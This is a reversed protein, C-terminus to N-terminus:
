RRRTQLNLLSQQHQQQQQQWLALPVDEEAVTNESTRPRRAGPPPVAHASQAKRGPVRPGMPQQANASISRVPPRAETFVPAQAQMSPSPKPSASLSFISAPTPGGVPQPLPPPPPVYRTSSGPSPAPPPPSRSRRPAAANRVPSPGGTVAGAAEAESMSMSVQLQMAGPAAIGPPTAYGAGPPAGPPRAGAFVSGYEQEMARHQMDYQPGRVPQEARRPGANLPTGKTLNGRRSQPTQQQQQSPGTAKAEGREIEAQEVEARDKEEHEKQTTPGSGGTEAEAQDTPTQQQGQQQSQPQQTKNIVGLYWFMLNSILVQEYLARRPNALKIHSLRYIAREVHIPYRSYNNVNSPQPSAPPVYGRSSKSAGLLAVAAERGSQGHGLGVATNEEPKKKSGFLSGFFGPDKEKERQDKKGKKEGGGWKFLGKKDKEKEKERRSDFGQPGPVSSPTSTSQMPHPRSEPRTHALLDSHISTSPSPSRSPTEVSAPIPLSSARQPSPHQLPPPAPSPQTPPSVQIPPISETSALQTPPSLSRRPLSQLPPPSTVKIAGENVDDRAYADFIFAEASYSEPRSSNPAAGDLSENSLLRQRQPPDPDGHDSTSLDSSSRPDPVPPPTERKSGLGRRTANFRHAGEGTQGQKRIKTRASRRLIQGPRPVIIPADVDDGPDPMPHDLNDVVSPSVNMSLSRRLVSRLKTPDRSQSAEEVLEDLKELDKITLQPGSTSYLSSRNRRLPLVREDEVGDNESPRYQRSLMSKKRGLSASGFSESRGLGGEAPAQAHEKLFARFQGPDIEPHMNAPVWFLHFPDDSASDSSSADEHSHSDSSSDDGPGWYGSSAQAAAAQAGPTPLDPDLILVGPGGQLTSRRRIDRLNEVERQIEDQSPQMLAASM